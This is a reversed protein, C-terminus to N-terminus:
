QEWLTHRLIAIWLRLWELYSRASHEAAHNFAVVGGLKAIATSM